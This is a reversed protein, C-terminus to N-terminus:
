ARSRPAGAKQAGFLYIDCFCEALEAPSLSGGKQYWEVTRDLLGRLMSALYRAEVDARISGNKQGAEIVRRIGAQYSRRAGVIEALREPSLARVEALSTAHQTQDRLLSMCHARILVALHELPCTIGEVANAVEEQLTEVSSKTILYLLDEKSKVHYYLTAKEMGILASLSRTSTSGYGQKAFLEAATRVFKGLTGSHGSGARRRRLNQPPPLSLRGRGPASIGEFFVRDYIGALDALPLRGSLQYWRPTWNLFNLLALRLISVPIDRRLVGAKVGAALERSLLGSYNGRLAILERRHAPSLSRFESISALARNANEFLGELHGRVLATLRGRENQAGQLAAGVQREVAELTLKSLRYLLEEKGSMHYYLSAQHINLRAAIERTTTASFGKECFLAAAAELVLQSTPGAPEADRPEAHSIRPPTSKATSAKNASVKIKAAHAPTDIASKVGRLALRAHERVLKEALVADRAQIADLIAEHERIAQALGGQEAPTVVASPSAFAISQVRDLSLQLMPSKALAALAKHFAMNLEGFRAMQDTTPSETPSFSATEEVLAASIRRVRDLQAADVGRKAALGAALGELAGRADIADEIDQASFVRPAYVGASLEELLGEQHLKELTARLIPRSAGLRKSLEVQEIAKRPSFEGRLVMERVEVLTQARRSNVGPGNAM